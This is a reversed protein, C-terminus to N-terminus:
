SKGELESLARRIAAPDPHGAALAREFHDRAARPDGLPGADLIGLEFHAKAHGPDIALLEELQMASEAFRGLRRLLLARNFLAPTHRRDSARAREYAELAGRPTAVSRASRLWSRGRARTARMSISRPAPRASPKAGPATSPDGGARSRPAREGAAPSPAHRRAEPAGGREDDGQEALLLGLAAHLQGAAPQADLGHRYAAAAGAADGREELLSGLALWGEPLLPERDVVGRLRREASALDGAPREVLDAYLVEAAASSPALALARRASEAAAESRGLAAQYRAVAVPAEAALASQKAAQQALALADELKGAQARLAAAALLLSPRQPDLGLAREIASEAEAFRGLRTLATAQTELATVNGPDQAVVEAIAAAAAAADGALLSQQAEGLRRHVAIMAKPDPLERDARRPHATTLYGLSRLKEAEAADLPAPAASASMPPPSPRSRRGLDRAIAKEDGIRNDLEGPDRETDYLEPSPGDILKWAGRRVAHLPAWGYSLFPTFTESYLVRAPAEEHEPADRTRM